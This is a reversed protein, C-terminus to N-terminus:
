RDWGLRLLSSSAMHMRFLELVVICWVVNCVLFVDNFRASHSLRSESVVFLLLLLFVFVM